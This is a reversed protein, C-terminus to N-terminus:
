GWGHGLEDSSVGEFGVANVPMASAIRPVHHQYVTQYMMSRVVLLLQVAMIGKESIILTEGDYRLNRVLRELDVFGCAVGTYYADRVLYDM